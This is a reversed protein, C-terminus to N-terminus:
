NCVGDISCSQGTIIDGETPKNEHGNKKWYNYAQEVAKSYADVSVSGQIIDKNNFLYFPIYQLNLENDARNIDNKIEDKYEFSGLMRKTDAESIGLITGIEILTRGDSINKGDTFFAKFLAEEAQGAIGYKNALKIMRLADFTNTIIMKDPNFHLGVEKALSVIEGFNSVAKEESWGNMEALFQYYSKSTQKKPMDPNLEYTHWIVELENKHEFGSIAKEFKKKGIYCFPCAIDSWIEIKM